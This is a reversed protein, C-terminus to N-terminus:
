ADTIEAFRVEPLADERAEELVRLLGDNKISHTNLIDRALRVCAARVLSTSVAERSRAPISGYDADFLVPLMEILSDTDSASLYGKNYMQNATWLLAALGPIRNSGIQAVLITLLRGTAPSDNLERWRLLAYSAHAVCNADKNRLAQRLATEVRDSFGANHVAFCPFARIAEPSHVEAYFGNLKEFAEETLAMSSLAPVVSHALATGILEGVRKEERETFGLIDNDRHKARWSVMRDFYRKAEDKSPLERAGKLQGARAIDALRSADFLVGDDAQFLHRRVLAKVAAPNESPLELLVSSLLGIEPLKQYEDAGWIKRALNQCESERLFGHEFLPVLRSLAPASQASCPAVKEIIEDLRRDLSADEGRNGPLEIVPNPWE